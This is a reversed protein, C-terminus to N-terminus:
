ALEPNAPLYALSLFMQCQASSLLPIHHHARHKSGASSPQMAAEDDMGNPM